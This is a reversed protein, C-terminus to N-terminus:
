SRRRRKRQKRRDRPRHPARPAPGTAVSIPLYEPVVGNFLREFAAPPHLRIREGQLEGRVTEIRESTVWYAHPSIPGVGQAFLERTIYLFPGLVDLVHDQDFPIVLAHHQNPASFLVGLESMQEVYNGVLLAHTTVFLNDGVLLKGKGYPGMTFPEVRPKEEQEVTNRLALDYLEDKSIPWQASEEPKIVALVKPLDLVLVANLGPAFTWCCIPGHALYTDPYLRLKLQDRVWEFDALLEAREEEHARVTDMAAFHHRIIESWSEEGALSCQRALKGLGLDFTEGDDRVMHMGGGALDWRARRREIEYAVLQLFRGYQSPQLSTAWAPLESPKFGRQDAMGLLYCVSGPAHCLCSM